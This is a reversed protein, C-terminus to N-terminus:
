QQTRLVWALVQCLTPHEFLMQRVIFTWGIRALHQTELEWRKTRRRRDGCGLLATQLDAKFIILDKQYFLSFSVCFLLSMGALLVLLLMQQTLYTM